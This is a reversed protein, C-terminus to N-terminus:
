GTLTGRWAGAAAGTRVADMGEGAAWANACATATVVAGRWSCASDATGSCSNASKKVVAGICAGTCAGTWAAGTCARVGIMAAASAM